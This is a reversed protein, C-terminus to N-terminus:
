FVKGMGGSGDANGSFGLMLHLRSLYKDFLTFVPTAEVIGDETGHSM